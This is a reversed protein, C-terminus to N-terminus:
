GNREQVRINLGISSSSEIFTPFSTNVNVCDLIKITENANSAAIAFAMAIRHDGYSHVEGGNLKGGTVIMGDDRTTVDIGLNKLGVAIAEIRDSEKVRLETANVLETDGKAFAAAIMIVPLEDIAIPVLDEPIKIGVLSSYQVRIDAIPEVDNVNIMKVEITAGMRRLIEIVADRTPNIGVNKLVLNSGPCISAAVLFFAASSIDGPIQIKRASLAGSKIEVYEKNVNINGGFEILMRETHDRTISHEIIRTKGKAYLGALLLCSKLQASAVPLRYIIGNLSNNGNIHIPLTNQDSSHFKAGMKLLPELIRRMPRQSLSDDGILTADFKQASLLGTLLRVSTGSNGFNLANAPEELGHLGVGHIVLEDNSEDICVGMDRFVNITSVIDASKLLGKIHTTGNAISGMIVARHSISKDGPINITGCLSGSPSSLYDIFTTSSM